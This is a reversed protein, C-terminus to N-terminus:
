RQHSEQVELVEQLMEHGRMGEEARARRVRTRGADPAAHHRAHADARGQRLFRRVLVVRVVYIHRLSASSPFLHSEVKGSSQTRTLPPIQM